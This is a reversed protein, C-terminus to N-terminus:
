DRWRQAYYFLVLLPVAAALLAVMWTPWGADQGQILPYMLAFSVLSILGVGLLDVRLARAPKSEPVFLAASAFTVVGIPVNVCFIARWHLGLVDYQTLVGGLLPGGVNGLSLVAGYLAFAKYRAQEGFMIMIVSMVQPVMLAASVGQALRAGILMGPSTAAGCLASTLTFGAVGILFIRKRGFVDGIRGGTILVLAFTLSYGALIWQVAAYGAHLGNQVRPPAISVITSDVMDMFVALLVVGLALNAHRPAARVATGLTM